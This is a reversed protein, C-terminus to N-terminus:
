QPQATAATTAVNEQAVSHVAEVSRVHVNRRMADLNPVLAAHL